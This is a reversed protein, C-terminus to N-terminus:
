NESEGGELSLFIIKADNEISLSLNYDFAPGKLRNEEDQKFSGLDTLEEFKLREEDLKTSDIVYIYNFDDGSINYSSTGPAFSLDTNLMLINGDLSYKGEDLSFVVDGDTGIFLDGFIEPSVPRSKYGLVALEGNIKITMDEPTYGDLIIEGSINMEGNNAAGGSNKIGASSITIKEDLFDMDLAFDYNLNNRTNLFSGNEITFHGTYDPDDLTGKAKIKAQLTGEPRHIFPFINGFTSLNFGESELTIDMEKDMIMEGASGDLSINIPLNGALMLLVDSGESQPEFFKFDLRLNKEYYGLDCSLRGFSIDAVTIDDADLNVFIRPEQITGKMSAIASINGDPFNGDIGFFYENLLEGEFNDMVLYLEQSGSSNLSGSLEAFSSDKALNMNAVYISDPYLLINIDERNTWLSEMYDIEATEIVIKQENASMELQGDIHTALLTDLQADFNYYLKSQNFILDAVLDRLNVGSYFRKGTLSLAGFLKDFSVTRNDRSFNLNGELNSLYILTEERQEIFYNLDLNATISFNSSDNSVKGKGMGSIDLKDDGLLLAILEFDKFKFDYDFNLEDFVFEPIDTSDVFTADGAEIALPNFGELKRTIIESLTEAEYQLIDVAKELSFIGTINFDVFDSTLKVERFDENKDLHLIIDSDFLDHGDYISNNLSLRFDGTMEDLKLNSGKADFSFNLNSTITTDKLFRNLDLSRLMGELDYVPRDEDTLDLMGEVFTHAGNIIGNAFLDIQKSQSYFNVDITDIVYDEIKSNVSKFIMGANLSGPNTGKGKVVGNCTLDTFSNMVPKLNLNETNFKFDYEMQEQQLDLFGDLDFFGGKSEASASAAFKTPEGDFKANVSNLELGPFEPLGLGPLLNLVDSYVIRSDNIEASIKLKHPINLNTLKGSVGILTNEYGLELNRINIDGFTGDAILTLSPNGNLLDTGSVFSSLDDFNFSETYLKLQLPYDYFDELEVGGLLNLKDLRADLLLKTTPTVFELNKVRVFNEAIEFYGALKELNFKNLNPSFSLERITVIFNPRNLDAFIDADLNLSKIEMDDTNFNERKNGREPFEKSKRLFNVNKLSLNNVFLVFPFTSSSTDNDAPAPEQTIEASSSDPLALRGTNWIGDSNEELRIDADSLTLERFYIRKLLLQLPSLRIDIKKIVVITDRGASLSIDRLILSTFITGDLEGISFQGNIRENVASEIRSRAMERFTSTQSFGFVLALLLIISMIFILFGNIIKRFLSRTKKQKKPEAM